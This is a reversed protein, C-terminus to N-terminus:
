RQENLDYFESMQPKPKPLEDIRPALEGDQIVYMESCWECTLFDDLPGGCETCRRTRITALEAKRIAMREAAPDREIRLERLRGDTFRFEHKCSDCRFDFEYM